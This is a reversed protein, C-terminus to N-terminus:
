KAKSNSAEAVTGSKGQPSFLKRYVKRAMTLSVGCSPDVQRCHLVTWNCGCTCQSKGLASKYEALQAASLASVDVGPVPSDLLKPNGLAIQNGPVAEGEPHFGVQTVQGNVSLLQRIEGEFVSESEAGIHKSYIRGDRGIVFSTPLGLIGGYLAVVRDNGLAVPYNMGMQKYFGQVSTLGSDIAVGIVQLGQARYEKQLQIFEPIEIRCPGCWTAWFDLLVVKGRYDKLDLKQGSIDTLTFNPAMPYSGGSASTTRAAVAPEIWTRNIVYLGAVVLVGILAGLLIRKTKM